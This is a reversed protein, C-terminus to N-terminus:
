FFMEYIYVVRLLILLKLIFFVSMIMIVTIIEPKNKLAQPLFVAATLSSLGSVAVTCGVGATAGAGWGTVGVGIGVGVGKRVFSLLASLVSLFRPIVTLVDKPSWNELHISNSRNRYSRIAAPARLIRSFLALIKFCFGVATIV